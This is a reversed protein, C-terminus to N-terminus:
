EAKDYMNSKTDMDQLGIGCYAENSETTINMVYAVSAKTEVNSAYAENQEMAMIAEDTLSCEYAYDRHLDTDPQQIVYAENSTM